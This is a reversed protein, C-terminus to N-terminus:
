EALNLEEWFDCHETRPRDKVEDSDGLVLTSGSGDHRPWAAASAPMGTWAFSSYLQMFRRSFALDGASPTYGIEDFTGFLYLLDLGHYSGLERQEPEDLPRDLLFRYRPAPSSVPLEATREAHCHYRADGLAREYSSRPTEADDFYREVIATAREIGLETALLSLFAERTPLNPATARLEDANSGVLLPVSQVWSPESMAALNHRSSQTMTPLSPLATLLDDLPLARMCELTSCGVADMIRGAFEQANQLSEFECAASHIAARQFLRESISMLGCVARGGASQGMVTVRRPDGGFAIINDRVWRLASVQDGLALNQAYFPPGALNTAYEFYGLPGLRYNATVVVINAEHALHTGHYIAQRSGGSVNGGGHFFVLVPLGTAGPNYVNLTLCDDTGIVRDGDLQACAPGFESADFHTASSPPAEAPLWRLPSPAAFPIGLFACSPDDRRGEITGQRTQVIGDGLAACPSVAEEEGEEGRAIGSSCASALLALATVLRASMVSVREYSAAGRRIGVDSRSM